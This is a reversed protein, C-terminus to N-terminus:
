PGANASAPEAPLGPIGQDMADLLARAEAGPPKPPPVGGWDAADLDVLFQKGGAEVLEIHLGSIKPGDVVQIEDARCEIHSIRGGNPTMESMWTLDMGSVAVRLNGERDQWRMSVNQFILPGRIWDELSHRPKDKGTAPARANGDAATKLEQPLPAGTWELMKKSMRGLFEPQLIGADDPALTLALGDVRVSELMPEGRPRFLRWRIRSTRAEIGAVKSVGITDRLRLNLSETARIRGVRIEMGALRSLEAEVRSRFFDTRVLVQLAGYALLFVLAAKWGFAWIARGISLPRTKEGPEPKRGM